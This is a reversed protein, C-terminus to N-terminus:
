SKGLSRLTTKANRKYFGNQDKTMHIADAKTRNTVDAGTLGEFGTTEHCV